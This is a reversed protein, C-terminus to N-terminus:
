DGILDKGKFSWQDYKANRPKHKKKYEDWFKDFEKTVLSMKRANKGWDWDLAACADSWPKIKEKLDGTGVMVVCVGGNGGPYMVLIDKKSDFTEIFKAVGNEIADKETLWGFCTDGAKVKEREWGLRNIYDADKKSTVGYVQESMYTQYHQEGKKAPREWKLDAYYHKAGMSTGIYTRIDLEVIM